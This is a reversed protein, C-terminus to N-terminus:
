KDEILRTLRVIEARVGELGPNLRLARRFSELASVPNGLRLYAQGMGSAAAFHYPNLELAQHCDRIAKVYDGLGFQAIARQNWAEALWSAQNILESAQTVADAFSQAANLRVVTALQQRHAEDGSRAWVARIGNEALTRVTRDEDHLSRGMTANVEYDGLFGLALVAARRYERVDHEALRQLTGTTYARSVDRIFGASDQDEL